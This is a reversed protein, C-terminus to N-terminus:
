QTVGKLSHGSVSIGGCSRLQIKLCTPHYKKKNGYGTRVDAMRCTPQGVGGGRGLGGGLQGVLACAVVRRGLVGGGEGVM